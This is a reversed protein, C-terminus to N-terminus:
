RPNDRSPVSGCAFPPRDHLLTSCKDPEIVALMVDHDADQPGSRVLDLVHVASPAAGSEAVRGAAPARPGPTPRSRLPTDPDSKYRWIMAQPTSHATM